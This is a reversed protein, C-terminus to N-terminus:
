EIAVVGDTKSARGAGFMHYFDVVNPDDEVTYWNHVTRTLTFAAEREAVRDFTISYKEIWVGKSREIYIHWGLDNSFYKTLGKIPKWVNKDEPYKLAVVPEGQDSLTVRIRAGRQQTGNKEFTEMLADPASKIFFVGEWTGTAPGYSDIVAKRAAVVPNQLTRDQDDKFASCSALAAVILLLTWKM